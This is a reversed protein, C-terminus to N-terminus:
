LVHVKEKITFACQYLMCVVFTMYVKFWLGGEVFQLMTETIEINKGVGAKTKQFLCIFLGKTVNTLTRVLFYIKKNKLWFM